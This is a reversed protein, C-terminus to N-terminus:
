ARTSPAGLSCDRRTPLGTLSGVIYARVDAGVTFIGTGLTGDPDASYVVRRAGTAAVMEALVNVASDIVAQVTATMSPYGGSALEGTPIGASRVGRLPRIIANGGGPAFGAAEGRLHASFQEANDNFVFIADAWEPQGTMWVFDGMRGPGTFTVPVVEVPRAKRGEAPDAILRATAWDRLERLVSFAEPTWTQRDCMGLLHQRLARVDASM